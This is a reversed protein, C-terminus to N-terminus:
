VEGEGDKIEQIRRLLDDIEEIQAKATSTEGDIQEDIENQIKQKADADMKKCSVKMAEANKLANNSLHPNVDTEKYSDLDDMASIIDIELAEARAEAEMRELEEADSYDSYNSYDSYDSHNDYVAAAFVVAGGAAAFIVPM